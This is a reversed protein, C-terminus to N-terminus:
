RFLSVLWHALDDGLPFLSACVVPRTSPQDTKAKNRRSLLDLTLDFIEKFVAPNGAVM